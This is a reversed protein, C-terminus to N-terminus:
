AEGAPGTNVAITRTRDPLLEFPPTIRPGFGEDVLDEHAYFLVCGLGSARRASRYLIGHVPKGLKGALRYRVFETIVQSPVYDIHERGDKAIPKTFDNNFDHLFGLAARYLNEEDSDFITPVGPLDVLNLVNLDQTLRFTAITAEAPKGDHRVYTEALATTEDLAAYLMSVGAPSMRNAFRAKDIPPPGFEDRTNAPMKGPEHLRVRVLETGAKLVSVLDHTRFLEGLEDLMEAPATVEDDHEHDLSFQLYRVRHKILHVFEEWGIRRASEETLSYPNKHVWSTNMFDAALDDRLNEDDLDWCLGFEDLLEYGDMTSLQYGGEASEYGVSNAADEYEMEIRERMHALLESLPMARPRKWERGCYTCEEISANASIYAALSSHQICRPCVDPM